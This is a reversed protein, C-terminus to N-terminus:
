LRSLIEEKKAQFEDSTILGSDLMIKLKSLKQIEDDSGETATTIENVAHPIKGNHELAIQLLSYVEQGDEYLFAVDFCDGKQVGYRMKEIVLLHYDRDKNRIKYDRRNINRQLSLPMEQIRENVRRAWKERGGAKKVSLFDEVKQPNMWKWTLNREFIWDLFGQRKGKAYAVEDFMGWRFSGLILRYGTIFLAGTSHIVSWTGSDRFRYLSNVTCYTASYIKENPQLYSEYIRTVTLHTIPPLKAFVQEKSLIQNM